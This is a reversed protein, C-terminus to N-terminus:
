VVKVSWLNLVATKSTLQQSIINYIYSLYLYFIFFVILKLEFIFYM